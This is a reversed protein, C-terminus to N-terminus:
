ITKKFKALVNFETKFFNSEKKETLKDLTDLTRSIIPLLMKQYIIREEYSKKDKLIWKKFPYNIYRFINKSRNWIFNHIKHPYIIKSLILRKNTSNELDKFRKLNYYRYHGHSEFEEKTALGSIRGPVFIILEGNVKLTRYCENIVSIDNEIHELTHSSIIVDFFNDPYPLKEANGVALSAKININNLLKQTFDIANQSYDIGYLDFNKIDQLISSIGTGIELLNGNKKSINSIIIKRTCYSGVDYRYSIYDNNNFYKEYFNQNM